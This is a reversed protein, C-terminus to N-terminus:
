LPRTAAARRRTPPLLLSQQQEQTVTSSNGRSAGRRGAQKRINGGTPCTVYDTDIGSRASSRLNRLKYSLERKNAPLSCEPDPRLARM